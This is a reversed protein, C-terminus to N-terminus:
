NPVRMTSGANLTIGGVWANWAGGFNYFSDDSLDFSLTVSVLTIQNSANGSNSCPIDSNVGCNFRIQISGPDIPPHFSADNGADVIMQKAQLTAASATTFNELDTAPMLALFRAADRTAKQVANYQWVVRGFQLMAFMLIFIFPLILALEVAAIGRQSSQAARQHTHSM